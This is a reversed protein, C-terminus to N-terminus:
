KSFRINARACENYIQPDAAAASSCSAMARSGLNKRNYFLDGKNVLPYRSPDGLRLSIYYAAETEYANVEDYYRIPVPFAGHAGEHAVVAGGFYNQADELKMGTKKSWSAAVNKIMNNDLTVTNDIYSGAEQGNLDSFKVIPGKGNDSGYFRLAARLQPSGSGLISGTRPRNAADRLRKLYGKFDGCEDDSGQCDYNGTPDIRNSPDNGVYAYLNVQDEYGIPDTQLFRGLTPSYIRAKYHYLGLEAIWAQGTYQFRGGNAAGPVGYEDYSNITLLAGSANAIGIISGQRDAHLTRPSAFGSGEYWVVPDDVGAGHAYRKLLTGTGGYEAVLEDGDYLFRTVGSSGDTVEYLRGLPDYRLAAQVAGGYGSTATPCTAGQQVRKEVLRNEVDYLYVSAGDATLNGNDDYCFGSGTSTATYQNLGNVTYDRDVNYHATWAYADNDRVQQGLQQAPTYGFSFGVTGTGGIYNHSLGSLRGAADYTYTDNDNAQSAWYDRSGRKNYYFSAVATGTAWPGQRLSTMRDLGDYGYSTKLADPWTLELRNGDKDYLSYGLTRTVGDMKLASSTMRGFGDYSTTVGESSTAASDFRAHLQLGRADYGYYVDRTQDASLGTRSPVVKLTMRNLRDYEYTLVSGDRKKLSTRNGNADYAYEEYDTTSVTGAATKSPFNWRVQRDYGDYTMSAKYGRADTLSTRKGNDSYSHTAYDEALTTGVARQEKILQGADDYVNKTIRDPGFDNAGTGPTGLTCASAPLSGFIAPNMRQVTCEPRGVVDYSYQVVSVIVGDSGKAVEKIKRNQADYSTEVSSLIEFNAWSAPAISESQWNTLQGTEVKTPRGTVDYTTRTAAYKLPGSSGDPDPAITGTVRGALDYRTASTYPSPSFQAAAPAASLATASAAAAALALLARKMTSAGSM